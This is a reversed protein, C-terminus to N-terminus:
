MMFNKPPNEMELIERNIRFPQIESKTNGDTAM